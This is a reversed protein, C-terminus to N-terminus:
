LPTTQRSLILSSSMWNTVSVGSAAMSLLRCAITPLSRVRISPRWMRAVVLPLHNTASWPSRNTVKQTSLSPWDMKELRAVWRRRWSQNSRQTTQWNKSSSIISKFGKLGFIRKEITPTRKSSPSCTTWCVSDERARRKWWSIKIKRSRPKTSNFYKSRWSLDKRTLM